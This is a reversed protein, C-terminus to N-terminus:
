AKDEHLDKQYGSPLGKLMALVAGVDGALRAAKGRALELGDPNRKQPMLSSGTTYAEPLRVFGFEESSYLILDEALRSLHTATLAAVSVLEAIWDRDDGAGHPTPSISDFAVG